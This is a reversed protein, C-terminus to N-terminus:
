KNEEMFIGVTRNSPVLLSKSVRHLHELTMEQIRDREWFYLRWDGGAIYSSLKESFVKIDKRENSAKVKYQNKIEDLEIQNFKKKNLNSEQQLFFDKVQPIKKADGFDLEAYFMLANAESFQLNGSNFSSSKKSNLFKKKWSQIGNDSSLLEGILTAAAYDPHSIGETRYALFVVSREKPRRILFEKQTQRPFKGVSINSVPEKYGPIESFANAVSILAKEVDFNGAIIITANNPHYHKGWFNKVADLQINELDRRNGLVDTGYPHKQFVTELMKKYHFRRINSDNDRLEDLVESLATHLSDKSYSFNQMRDAEVNLIWDLYNDKTEFNSRYYTYDASTIGVRKFKRDKMEQQLDPHHGSGRMVAFHEFLHAIGKEDPAEYKSGVRYTLNVVTNKAFADPILLIQLGNSLKYESIGELERVFIGTEQSNKTLLQESQKASVAAMVSLLLLALIANIMKVTLNMGKFIFFLALLM